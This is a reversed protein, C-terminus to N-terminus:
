GGTALLDGGRMHYLIPRVVDQQLQSDIRWVLAKRQQPDSEMSQKDVPADREHNYYHTYNRNSACVYNEYFNQDPDDPGSGVLSQALTFDGRMLQPLWNATETLAIDADIWIQQLQDILIAAPVISNLSNQKVNPDVVVLNDFVGMIPAVISIAGVELISMNAPSDRHYVRAPRWRAKAGAGFRGRRAAIGRAGAGGTRHQESGGGDRRVGATPVPRNAGTADICL